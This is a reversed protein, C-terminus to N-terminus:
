IIISNFLNILEDAYSDYCFNSRQNWVNERRKENEKKDSFKESLFDFTKIKIAMGLSELYEQHHVIHGTNDHMIMPLGAMAYTSMRAPSNIDSWNARMLDGQNCSEYYHLWGADYQSFESVWNETPCNPHLHVYGPVLASAEDIMKQSANYNVDGYIHLHIHQNGMTEIDESSMGFVRGALVTHIEGDKDSLLPSREGDFWHKSPLDGDVIVTHTTRKRLFLDFWEQIRRNTYVIGDSQEFLDILKNWLGYTRCFFPGEKFHWVFPINKPRHMLVHHALEVAKFNLMAYIVDPKIEKVREEWHEFPIDEVHGFPLLGVTNYCLPNNIWLGYLKHGREEFALIREPNFALEGVLLIKLGRNDFYTQKGHERLKAYHEIEDVINGVSSHYRLPEKVGYYTKYMYIGGGTRDNLINHRQYMHSFWECTVMDTHVKKQNNKLFTSWFMRNLDDTVLEGREIWRDATKRHMVQVLQLTQGDICGKCQQTSHEGGHNGINHVIGSYVFDADESVIKDYMTQLHNEFYIDDAPLYAIYKGDAMDIAMNLCFGLGKNEANRIYSIRKDSLFCSVADYLNDKSGDDVIILQWRNFTQRLLSQIACRIYNANNYSPIIVSIDVIINEM